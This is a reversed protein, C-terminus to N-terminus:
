KTSKAIYNLTIWGQSYGFSLKKEKDVGWHGGKVISPTWRQAPIRSPSQLLKAPVQLIKSHLKCRSGEVKIIGIYKLKNSGSTDTWPALLPPCTSDEPHCSKWQCWPLPSPKALVPNRSTKEQSTVVYKIYRAKSPSFMFLSEKQRSGEALLCYESSLAWHLTAWAPFISTM